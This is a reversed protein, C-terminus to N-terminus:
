KLLHQNPDPHPLTTTWVLTNTFEIKWSHDKSLISSNVYLLAIPMEEM